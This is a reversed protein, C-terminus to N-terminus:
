AEQSGEVLDFSFFLHLRERTFLPELSHLVFKFYLLASFFFTFCVSTFTPYRRSFICATGRAPLLNKAEQLPILRYFGVYCWLRKLFKGGKNHAKLAITSLGITTEETPHLHTADLGHSCAASM